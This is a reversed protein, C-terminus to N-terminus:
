EEPLVVYSGRYSPCHSRRLGWVTMRGHSHRVSRSNTSCWPCRFSGGKVFVIPFSDGARAPIHQTSIDAGGQYEISTLAHLLSNVADGMDEAAISDSASKLHAVITDRGSWTRRTFKKLVHDIMNQLVNDTTQSM